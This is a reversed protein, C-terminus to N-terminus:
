GFGTQEGALQRTAPFFSTENKLRKLSGARFDRIRLVGYYSKFLATILLLYIPVATLFRM